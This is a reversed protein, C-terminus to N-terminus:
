HREVRVNDKCLSVTGDPNHKVAMYGTASNGLNKTFLYYEVGDLCETPTSGNRPTEIRGRDHNPECAVLFLTLGLAAIIKFIM